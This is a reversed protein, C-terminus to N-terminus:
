IGQQKRNTIAATDGQYYIIRTLVTVMMETQVGLPVFLKTYSPPLKLKWNEEKGQSGNRGQIGYIGVRYFM